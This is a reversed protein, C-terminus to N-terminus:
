DREQRGGGQDPQGEPMCKHFFGTQFFPSNNVVAVLQRRPPCFPECLFLYNDAISAM